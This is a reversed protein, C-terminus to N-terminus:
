VWEGVDACALLLLSLIAPSSLSFFALSAAFLDKLLTKSARAKKPAVKKEGKV